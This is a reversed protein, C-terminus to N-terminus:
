PAVVPNTRFRVDDDGAGDARSPSLAKWAAELLPKLGERAVASV